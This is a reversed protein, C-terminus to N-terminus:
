RDDGVISWEKVRALHDYAGYRSRWKPRPMSHYPQELRAFAQLLTKLRALNHQALDDFNAINFREAIKKADGRSLDFDAFQGAPNGGSLKVVAIQSVSVGAAIGEFGGDRAIAAELPLQPALGVLAQKATPPEGTKYDLVAVSGDTLVDIRDARASLIFSRDGLEITLRGRTEVRTSAVGERRGIEKGVFWEAVREFRPWWVARIGPFGDLTAFASRGIELL